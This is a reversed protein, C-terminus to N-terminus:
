CDNNDGREEIEDLQKKIAKVIDISIKDDYINDFLKRHSIYLYLKGETKRFEIWRPNNDPNEYIFQYNDVEKPKLHSCILKYGLEEFMEKATM